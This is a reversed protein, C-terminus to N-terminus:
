KEERYRILRWHHTGVDNKYSFSVCEFEDNINVSGNLENAPPTIRALAEELTMTKGQLEDAIKKISAPLPVVPGGVGPHPDYFTIKQKLNIKIKPEERVEEHEPIGSEKFNGLSYAYITDWPPLKRFTRFLIFETGQHNLKNCIDELKERNKELAAETGADNDLYRGLTLVTIVAIKEKQSLTVLELRSERKLGSAELGYHPTWGHFTQLPERSDHQGLEFTIIDEPKFKKQLELLQRETYVGGSSVIHPQLLYLKQTMKNEVHKSM